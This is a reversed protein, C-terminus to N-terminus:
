YHRRRKARLEDMLYRSIERSREDERYAPPTDETWSFSSQRRARRLSDGFKEAATKTKRTM